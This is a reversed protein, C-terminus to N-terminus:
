SKAPQSGELPVKLGPRQRGPRASHKETNVKLFPLMRGLQEGRIFQALTRSVGRPRRTLLCWGYGLLRVLGGLIYPLETFRYVCKGTEFLVHNGLIYDRVGLKWRRRLANGESINRPKLHAVEIEKFTKVRFGNYRAQVCTIMDWGGEPLAVLGGLSEFCERRFFQVAGAVDIGSQVV